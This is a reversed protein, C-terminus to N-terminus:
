GLKLVDNAAELEMAVAFLVVSHDESIDDSTIARIAAVVLDAGVVLRGPSGNTTPPPYQGSAVCRFFM